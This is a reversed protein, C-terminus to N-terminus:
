SSNYFTRIKKKQLVCFEILKTSKLIKPKHMPVGIYEERYKKMCTYSHYRKNKNNVPYNIM